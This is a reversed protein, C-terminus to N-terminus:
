PSPGELLACTRRHADTFDTPVELQDGPFVDALVLRRSNMVSTPELGGLQGENNYGTSTMQVMMAQDSDVRLGVARWLGSEGVSWSIAKPANTDPDVTLVKLTLGRGSCDVEVQYRAQDGQLVISAKVSVNDNLKDIVRDVQWGNSEFPFAKALESLEGQALVGDIEAALQDLRQEMGTLATDDETVLPLKAALIQSADSEIQALAKRSPEDLFQLGRSTVKQKLDLVGKEYRDTRSVQGIIVSLESAAAAADALKNELGRRQPLPVTDFDSLDSIANRMTTVSSKGAPSLRESVGPVVIEALLSKGNAIAKGRREELEDANKRSVEAEELQATLTSSQEDFSAIASAIDGRKGTPLQADDSVEQKLKALLDLTAPEVFGALSADAARQGLESLKEALSSLAGTQSDLLAKRDRAGKEAILFAQQARLLIALDADASAAQYRSYADQLAALGDFAGVADVLNQYDLTDSAFSARARLEVARGEAMFQGVLGPSKTENNSFWKANIAGSLQFCGVAEDPTQVRSPVSSRLQDFLQDQSVGPAHDGRWSAYIAAAVDTNATLYTLLSRTQDALELGCQQTALCVPGRPDWFAEFDSRFNPSAQGDLFLHSECAAPIQVLRSFEDPSVQDSPSNGGSLVSDTNQTSVSGKPASAVEHNGFLSADVAAFRLSGKGKSDSSASWIFGATGGVRYIPLGSRASQQFSGLFDVLPNEDAAKGNALSALEAADVPDLEVGGWTAITSRQSSPGDDSSRIQPQQAFKRSLRDIEAM